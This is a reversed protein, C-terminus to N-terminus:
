VPSQWLTLVGDWLGRETGIESWGVARERDQEM